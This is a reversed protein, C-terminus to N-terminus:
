GTCHIILAIKCTRGKEGMKVWGATTRRNTRQRLPRL